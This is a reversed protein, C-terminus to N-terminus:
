FRVPRATRVEPLDRIAALAAAPVPSDVAVLSLAEGDGARGLHIGAINVGAEGLITGVRGVVGPVDRNRFMLLHGELRCEVDAGDASVLRPPGAAFLTGAVRAPGAETDLELALLGAYPTAESSRGESVTIGREGARDLANVYSVDEALVPSLLGKVAAMMIPRLPRRNFEGYCRVTLARVAGEATQGLLRGLREALTMVPRLVAQEERSVSPFNVADLITGSELFERIKRAVDRGVREQAEVTSAGLHPTGIVRPHEV